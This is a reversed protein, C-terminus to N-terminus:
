IVTPPILKKKKSSKSSTEAALAAKAKAEKRELSSKVEDVAVKLLKLGAQSLPRVDNWFYIHDVLNDYKEELRFKMVNLIFLKEKSCRWTTTLSDYEKIKQTIEDYKSRYQFDLAVQLDPKSSITEHGAVSKPRTTDGATHPPDTTATNVRTLNNNVDGAPPPEMPATATNPRHHRGKKEDQIKVEIEVGMLSLIAMLLYEDAQFRRLNTTLCSLAINEYILHSQNSENAFVLAIAAKELCCDALDPEGLLFNAAKRYYLAADDWNKFRYHLDAIKKAIRGAAEFVNLDCFIKVAQGYAVQAEHLDVKLYTEAAETYVAAAELFLHLNTYKEACKTLSDAASKWEGQIRLKISDQYYQYAISDGTYNATYQSSKKRLIAQM